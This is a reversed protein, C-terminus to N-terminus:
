RQDLDQDSGLREVVRLKSSRARPNAKEEEGRPKIPKRTVLKVKAERPEEPMNLMAMMPDTEDDKARM